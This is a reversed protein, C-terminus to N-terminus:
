KRKMTVRVVVESPSKLRVYPDEVFANVRFESTGVVGSVDVPDTVVASVRSVHSVPGVVSVEKPIVEASELVYGNSGLGTFRVQVPVTRPVSKEFDFRVEAPLARVMTVGRPLKVNGDGIPFTHEGPRVGGMDLVVEARVGDGSLGRLAGSPGRLELSVTSVPESALELDDPMNRYEVRANAFTSMEPESAVMAWILAALVLSLVKWGFRDFILGRVKNM